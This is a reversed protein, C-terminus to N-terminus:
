DERPVGGPMPSVGISNVNASHAGVGKGATAKMRERRAVSETAAAIQNQVASVKQERRVPTPSAAQEIFDATDVGRAPPTLQELHLSYLLAESIVLEAGESGGTAMEYVLGRPVNFSAGQLLKVTQPQEDELTTVYLTGAVVYITRDDKQNVIQGANSSSAVYEFRTAFSECDFIPITWGTETPKRDGSPVASPGKYKKMISAHSIGAGPPPQHRRQQQLARQNNGRNPNHM